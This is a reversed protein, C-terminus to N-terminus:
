GGTDVAEEIGDAVHSSGPGPPSDDTGENILISILSPQAAASM